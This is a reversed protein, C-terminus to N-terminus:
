TKNKVPMEDGIEKLSMSYLGKYGADNFKGFNSVGVLHATSFLKKNKDAVENRIAIRRQDESLEQFIEQRRTQVAFYTQAKAVESKSSDSNQAILYCAYRSLKYDKIERVTSSGIGVMKNTDVFHNQTDQLSLICAKKAKKVILNFNRWENYQLIEMLERARWFEIGNEDLEKIEEFRKNISNITIEKTM